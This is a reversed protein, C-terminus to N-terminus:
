LGAFQAPIVGGPVFVSELSPPPVAATAPPASCAFRTEECQHPLRPPDAAGQRHAARRIGPCANAHVQNTRCGINPHRPVPSFVSCSLAEGTIIFECGPSAGPSVRSPFRAPVLGWPDSEVGYDDPSGAEPRGSRRGVFRGHHDTGRDGPATRLNSRPRPNQLPRTRTAESAGGEAWSDLGATTHGLPKFRCTAFWRQGLEPLIPGFASCAVGACHFGRGPSEYGGGNGSQRGDSRPRNPHCLADRRVGSPAVPCKEGRCVYELGRPESPSYDGSRPFGPLLKESRLM